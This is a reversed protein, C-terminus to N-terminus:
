FIMMKLFLKVDVVNTLDTPFLKLGVEGLFTQKGDIETWNLINEFNQM